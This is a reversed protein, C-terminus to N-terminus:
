PQAPQDPQLDPVERRTHRPIGPIPKSRSRFRPASRRCAMSVPSRASRTRSTTPSARCPCSRRITSTTAGPCRRRGDRLRPEANHRTRWAINHDACSTDGSVGIAASSCTSSHQVPRLRRRLRQHRRDQASWRITAGHRIQRRVRTRRARISRTARRYVSCRGAPSCPRGSIPADLARPGAPQVLEGHKGEAGLHRPKGAVALRPRRWHVRGRLRHRRPRRDHGVHRPQLWRQGRGPCRCVAKLDAQSPLLSCQNDSQALAPRGALLLNIMFVGCVLKKM